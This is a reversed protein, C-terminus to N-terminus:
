HTAREQLRVVRPKWSLEELVALYDADSLQGPPKAALTVIVAELVNTGPSRGELTIDMTTTVLTDLGRARLLDVDEPTTTNTVISKGRLDEILHRRIYKFDGCIIDAWEYIEPCRPVIVEQKRGTPYVWSQPCLTLVPLITRALRDLGKMTRVPISLGLSFILDGFIFEGGAAAVAEAMGFRDVASVVLTKASAFDLIGERALIGVTQREITNKLGSGDVIPSLRAHAAMRAERRWQYRKGAAVVWIDGGGFGFCSVKGDHEDILHVFQRVDSNTGVRQVRIPQGLFEREVDFDGKPTGLSVSLVHKM